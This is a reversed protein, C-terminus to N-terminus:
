CPSPRAASSIPPRSPAPPVLTRRASRSRRSPFALEYLVAGYLWQSVGNRDLRYESERARYILSRAPTAGPAHPPADNVKLPTALRNNCSLRSTAVDGQSNRESVSAPM